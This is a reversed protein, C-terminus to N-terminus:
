EHLDGEAPNVAGAHRRRRLPLCRETGNCNSDDGTTCPDRLYRLVVTWDSASKNASAICTQEGARCPGRGDAGPHTQVAQKTAPVCKCNGDVTNDAM